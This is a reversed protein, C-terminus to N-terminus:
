DHAILLTYQRGNENPNSNDSSSFVFDEGWHSYRGGGYRRIHDHLASPYPLQRPGEFLFVRSRGGAAPANDALHTLDPVHATFARGAAAKFPAPLPRL